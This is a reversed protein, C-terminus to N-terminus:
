YNRVSLKTFLVMHLITHKLLVATSSLVFMISSMKLVM